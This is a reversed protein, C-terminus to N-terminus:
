VLMSIKEAALIPKHWPLVMVMSGLKITKTQGAMFALFQFPDPIMTYDTFHHEVTWISDYGLPEALQAIRLENRYVEYDPRMREKNQFIISLGVDM